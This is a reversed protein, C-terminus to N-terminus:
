ADPAERLESRLTQVGRAVLSRVTAPRCRLVLAIEDAPLDEYYRLVIAARQRQPLRGLADVVTHRDVSHREPGPTPEPQIARALFGREVARRRFHNKALNVVTRRLYADFSSADRLHGLHGVVRVFADQAIDEAVAPDGTLLYALRISGPGSREYLDALKSSGTSGDTARKRSSAKAVGNV